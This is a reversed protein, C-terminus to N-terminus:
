RIARSPARSNLKADHQPASPCLPQRTDHLNFQTRIPDSPLPHPRPAPPRNTIRLQPFALIPLHTSPGRLRLIFSPFSSALTSTFTAYAPVFFNCTTLHDPEEKKKM